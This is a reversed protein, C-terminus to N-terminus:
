SYDAHNCPTHNHNLSFFSFPSRFLSRTQCAARCPSYMAQDARIWHELRALHQPTDVESLTVPWGHLAHLASEIKEEVGRPLQFTEEVGSGPALGLVWIPRRPNPPSNKQLMTVFQRNEARLSARAHAARRSGLNEVSRSRPSGVTHAAEHANKDARGTGVRSTVRTKHRQKYTSFVV